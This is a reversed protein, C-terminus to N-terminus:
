FRGTSGVRRGRILIQQMALTSSAHIAMRAPAEASPRTEDIGLPGPTM